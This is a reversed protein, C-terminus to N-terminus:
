QFFKFGKEGTIKFYIKEIIKNAKKIEESSPEIVDEDNSAVLEPYYYNLEIEEDDNKILIFFDSPTYDNTDDIVGVWSIWPNNPLFEAFYGNTASKESKLIKILDKNENM